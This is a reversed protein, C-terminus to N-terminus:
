WTVARGERATAVLGSLAALVPGAADVPLSLDVGGVRVRLYSARRWPAAAETLYASGSREPGDVLWAGSLDM